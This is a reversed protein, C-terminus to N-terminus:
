CGHGKRQLSNRIMKKLVDINIDSLRKIYICAKSTKHKGLQQLLEDRNEFASSLYLTIEKKRPSFAIVPMDGERGSEYKYHYSGFGIIAPGWMKPQCGTHEQMIRVIEFCDKQKQQDDVKRIFETVSADNEVTQLKAKAM